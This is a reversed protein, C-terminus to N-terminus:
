ARLDACPWLLEFCVAGLLGGGEFFYIIIVYICVFIFFLFIVGFVKVASIVGITMFLHIVM